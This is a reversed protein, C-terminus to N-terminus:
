QPLKRTASKVGPVGREKLWAKAVLAPVKGEEHALQGTSMLLQVQRRSLGALLALESSNLSKKEVLRERASAADMVLALEPLAEVFKRCESMSASLRLIPPKLGYRAFRAVDRVHRYILTSRLRDPPFGKPVELCSTLLFSTVRVQALLHRTVSLALEDPNIHHLVPKSSPPAM